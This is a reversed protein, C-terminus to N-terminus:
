LVKKMCIATDPCLHSFEATDEISNPASTREITKYNLNTFFQAATTTLLYISQVGYEIANKELRQVLVKGLGKGQHKESIVLSRLLADKESVELGITGVLEDKYKLIIFYALVDGTLDASPLDAKELLRIIGHLDSKEASVITYTSPLTM